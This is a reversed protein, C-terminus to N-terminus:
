AATIFSKTPSKVTAVSPIFASHSIFTSNKNHLMNIAGLLKEPVRNEILLDDEGYVKKEFEYFFSLYNATDFDVELYNHNSKWFLGITGDCSVMIKPNAIQNNKLINLFNKVTAVIEISPGVGNYGDWNIPLEKYSYLKQLLKEYELNLSSKKFNIQENNTELLIVNENNIYSESATCNASTAILFTTILSTTISM